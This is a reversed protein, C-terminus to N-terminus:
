WGNYHIQKKNFKDKPKEIGTPYGVPIVTLPIIHEPLHLAERVVKM